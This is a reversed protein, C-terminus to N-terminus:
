DRLWNQSTTVVDNVTGYLGSALLIQRIRYMESTDGRQYAQKYLPKWYSTMSSRLSSKAEKEEMGNSVKTDILDQIIERAMANDGNEFATNIDSAKYISTAEDKVEEKETEETPQKNKIANLEANIASVVTDQSFHGEAIIEKAIRTYESMDGDFRAQAAEKIRPDNERLASKVASLYAKEDKYTKKIRNLYEEDGSMLVDYLKDSKTENPLWGWVPTSDKLADKMADGLSQGTTKNGSLFTKITNVVGNIERRLNKSPIGALSGIHDLIGLMAENIAKHHEELEEEDMDDTDKAIISVAQKLSDVLSDILSMDAREVDFGQFVSWIDRFFPLYTIPNFGDFMEVTLSQMYKELFTEDEDDDRMAYVLSSLAANLMISGAVSGLTRAMYKKNGRLGERIANEVMNITTTPEALFSTLMNMFVSKSRMNSSRSLVSDYVQTKKIVESFREGCKNLFEESNIDMGPNTALTERKVAKWISCWALEDALAPLRSLKEDRYSGDKLNFFAKTKEKFTTYATGKIYDSTSKGINTDFYGMEKIVAVPAYKKIESWNEGHKGGFHKGVFYKPDILSLARIISTPQQILVSLSLFTSAKKFKSIMDKAFSERADSRAGGNIDDYLQDIYQVAAQGHHNQIESVVSMTELNEASQTKFHYVKRFDELPLVFAHYMSMENVHSAWVDMFGELIIPNNANKDTEHTFGSNVVRVKGQEAKLDAEKAKPNFQGASKLPFYFKEKFLEVGYLKMSVENGKAGMVDSLYAQMQDVFAKQETTLNAIVENLAAMAINHAKAGNKLYRRKIGGKKVIVETNKGFVFGGKSLHDHAQERKSFAYLSLLQELNVEVDLGYSTKFKYMQNFDWSNYKYKKKMEESFESAETVNRAWTDEAKLINGFLKHLTKSGLREFAYVPKENNWTYKDRWDKFRSTMTRDKKQAVFEEITKNGLEIRSQKINDAFLSNAQRISTLVMTYVKKMKELQDLSMDKIITGDVDEQLSLLYQYLEESYAGQVYEQKSTELSKYAKALDSLVTDITVKNLRSRERVFVDSIKQMRNALKAQANTLEATNGEEAFTDIQSIIALCEDVVAKEAPTLDTSFGNRIMDERSYEDSFLIEASRLAVSAFDKMDEKVNRKKNGHNLIDRIEAIKKRISRRLATKNRGEIGKKRSEQYRTMLERATKAGKEQQKRVAEKEQQKLRKRLMAKERELVNKLASTSELNLLQKDYTSIRNAIQTAEADLDRMTKTESPTRGKTIRLKQAKERIEGLRAQESEILAIKDKYQKLKNKEIDNQAVSELANALLSRNSVSDHDRDSYLTQGEYLVSDKMSDTIDMSWVKTGKPVVGDRLVDMMEEYEPNSEANDLYTQGVKAGWKKGYKKLFSPIDQDYEIRYGEAFEDSWRKVQIEAPTWGISDYGEETAMRLLRKLVYEHYNSRFPADPVKRVLDNSAKKYANNADIYENYLRLGKATGTITEWEGASGTMETSYDELKYFAEDLEAKLKEIRVEDKQEAYGDKAGENHWDSQLEEIFLMNKGDVVFDQVRTHVLIGEADQGWHVRMARNSYSSNPLKFVLERYNTGGDLTYQSWRTGSGYEDQLQEQIEGIDTVIEGSIDSMWGTETLEWTERVEGDLGKVVWNNGDKVLEWDDPSSMEEEIRLQSGAIFEQLEAKTVSKKGELWTEIGSWKIEENKVGKGKLYSVVGGAGMKEIKIGDVVKGMYSYFTPAYSDRDSYRFQSLSDEYEPINGTEFYNKIDSIIKSSAVGKPYTVSGDSNGNPKSFDVTFEDYERMVKFIIDRLSAIQKSNPMASIDIGYTQLRINGMNMFVIMGDSYQAYDPLDLIESIERHDKVRYGQGDSFDLMSGTTLLYSARSLYPTTHFKRVAKQVVAKIEDESYKKERLAKSLREEMREVEARLDRAKRDLSQHNEYAESYGSEKQWKGYDAILEDLLEKNTEKSVIADQLESMRPYEGISDLKKKTEKALEGAKSYEERLQTLEAESDRDSYRIDDNKANFRESLPIVNGNDDYTVPDSQKIQSSKFVIYHTTDIDVGVMANKRGSRSGFKGAVTNDIIGDFGMVEFADRVIENSALNGNEDEAFGFLEKARVELESATYGGYDFAESFLNNPDEQVWDYSDLVHSLANVFDILKGSPEGYEDTEENYEENYDFFTENQGGIIVPNEMKLYAKIVRPEGKILEKRAIELREDYDLDAYEDQWELQEALREIKLTLDAGETNAYNTEVDDQNNTFYFGKGWDGEPNGYSRDFINFFSVTGHNGKITYGARKAAEDVMKQATEMDGRNVADMYSSDRDSLKAGEDAIVTPADKIIQAKNVVAVMYNDGVSKDFIFCDYGQKKLEEIKSSVNTESSSFVRKDKTIYFPKKCRVYGQEVTGVKDTFNSKDSTLAILGSARADQKASGNLSMYNLLAPKGNSDAVFNGISLNKSNTTYYNCLVTSQRKPQTQASTANFHATSLTPAKYMTHGILDSPLNKGLSKTIEEAYLTYGNVEYSTLISPNGQSTKSAKITSPMKNSKTASLHRAIDKPNIPLQARLGERLFDGHESLSHRIADDSFRHKGGVFKGRYADDNTQNVLRNIAKNQESTIDSLIHMSSKSKALANNVTKEVEADIPYDKESYLVEGESVVEEKTLSAEYNADAEVFAKIYLDQLKQFVDQGLDRVHMAEKSISIDNRKYIGLAKKLKDLVSKIAEGVKEWLTKNQKKLDALKQYANPDALMESMADAVLEEYATDNLKAESPLAKGKREYRKKIKDVQYDLLKQVPVGKKGYETILFDAFEKFGQENWQRIYHTIEHAMTILMAGEANNGANIDIYIQNGNKFYGNPAPQWKGDIFAVRDGNKVVSEFVHVELNSMKEIVEIHAMSIKQIKSAKKENYVYGNEYIIGNKKVSATKNSGTKTNNKASTIADERGLNYAIKKAERPLNIKNLGAEYGIKGYQYALPVGMFYRSAQNFDTAKFSEIFKNAVSPSTEMRAIMEYMLAEEKTSYSIDSASVVMGNDLEVKLGGKTSAVKQVNVESTNGQEDTYKTKGDESVKIAENEGSEEVPTNEDSSITKVEGTAEQSTETPKTQFAERLGKMRQNVTSNQDIIVERFVDSLIPNSDLMAQQAETLEAGAVVQALLAANAEAVKSKMGYNELARAIDAQNRETLTANMENFLRAITYAGTKENVRGALKYAVSDASFYDRDKAFNTLAEVSLGNKLLNKGQFHLGLNEAITGKGFATGGVDFAGASLAGLLGSYLVEDINPAEFDTGTVLSKIWPELVTQLAEETFEDAMNAGLQIAVRAFANDIKRLAIQSLKTFVGGDGGSVGAIGGILYQLGTEAAGVLAAYGRSQWENYGLNRMEAYANGVVSAGLTLAGGLGGTFHGVVISPLMNSTTTVFDNAVKWIGTNNSSAISQAYQISTTPDAETGLIFNDLNRVGSAFQDLGAVASFVLELATGDMQEAIQGGQRQRFVDTLNTLYEEAKKTDGKGIYYNYVAKEDDTMQTNILNVIETHKNSASGSRLAQASDAVANHRNEEAFTVMNTVKEGEGFPKWGFIEFPAQSSEWSPNSVGKGTQYFEEFDESGLVARQEKTSEYWQNYAEESDFQSYYSNISGFSSTIDDLSKSLSTYSEEDLRTRNDGLWLKIANNRSTLDQLTTTATGYSPTEKGEGFNGFFNNADKVFTDIFDQDVTYKKRTEYREKVGMTTENNSSEKEKKKKEEYREKVGM